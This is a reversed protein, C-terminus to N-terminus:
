KLLEIQLLQIARERFGGECYCLYYMWRRIFSEPYSLSRVQDLEEAFNERWRQLTLAYHETLDEVGSISLETHETLNNCVATLSPLCGGPFIYRRIFDVTNKAREYERDDITIAQILGRGGTKLLESCKRFYEPFYEHGVAEIMEISVLKDYHGQLDRYDLQLLEIRDELGEAEVRKRAYAYQEESITTTTVRCGFYKAAHIAFGGWGTGIEVVHDQPSLDLKRCIRDLKEIQAQELTWDRNEFIACSYMMTPDLFTEFFDNGLDYHESINQRSGRRSNKRIRDYLRYGPGLLRTWRQDMDNMAPRNRLMLRILDTLNDCEWWGEMFAEAAGITGGLMLRGYTRADKIRVSVRLPDGFHPAGFVRRTGNEDLVLEGREIRELLGFALSRAWRDTRAGRTGSTSNVGTHVLSTNM